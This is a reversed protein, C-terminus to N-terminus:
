LSMNRVLPHQFPRPGVLVPILSLGLIPRYNRMNMERKFPRPM